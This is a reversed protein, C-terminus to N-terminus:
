KVFSRLASEMKEPSSLLFFHSGQEIIVFRLDVGAQLLLSANASCYEIPFRDDKMGNIMLVPYGRPLGLSQITEGDPSSAISVLGRFREPCQAAIDFAASGGNSIGALWVNTLNTGIRRQLDEMLDAIFQTNETVSRKRWDIGCSPHVITCTPLLRKLTWLYFLFNGGYGHLFVVIPSNPVHRHYYHGQGFLQARLAHGLTRKDLMRRLAPDASMEAYTKKMLVALDAGERRNGELLLSAWASNPVIWSERCLAAAETFAKEQISEPQPASVSTEFIQQDIQHVM